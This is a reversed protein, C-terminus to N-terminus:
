KEMLKVAAKYVDEVSIAKLCKNDKCPSKRHNYASLCPSCAFGSYFIVADKRLPGYCVPTEPGFLVIMNVKTLSAFHVPGSDHTIFIDAISFLNLLDAFGLRGRIDAVRKQGAIGRMLSNEKNDSELGIIVIFTNKHILLKEALLIYNELPWSRIPLLKGGFPNIVIIRSNEDLHMGSNSKLLSRIKDRSAKDQEFVPLRIEPSEIRGKYFPTHPEITLLSEILAMFNLSIHLHPNYQVKINCLSGRYLGEQFFRYFGARIKAGSLYSLIATFRSFLEMDIVADIKESRMRRINSVSDRIISYFTKDNMTIINKEPIVGCAQVSEKNREFAWFYLEAHPLTEKIRKIASHALMASGMESLEIFLIKNFRAPRKVRGRFLSLLFCLPAGLWFDIKRMIDLRM